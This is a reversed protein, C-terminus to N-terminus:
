KIRKYIDYTIQPYIGPMAGNVYDLRLIDPGTFTYRYTFGDPAKGSNYYLYESDVQYDYKRTEYRLSIGDEFFELTHANPKFLSHDDVDPNGCEFQQWKGIFPQKYRTDDKDKQCGGAVIM